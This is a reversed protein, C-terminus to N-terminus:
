KIKLDPVVMGEIVLFLKWWGGGSASTFILIVRALVILTARGRYDASGCEAQTIRKFAVPTRNEGSQTEVNALVWWLGYARTPITMTATCFWGDM